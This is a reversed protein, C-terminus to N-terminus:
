GAHGYCTEGTLARTVTRHGTVESDQTMIVYLSGARTSRTCMYSGTKSARLRSHDARVATSRNRNRSTNIRARPPPCRSPSPAASSSQESEGQVIATVVAVDHIREEEAALKAKHERSRALRRREQCPIYAPNQKKGRRSFCM